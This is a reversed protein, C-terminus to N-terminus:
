KELKYGISSILEIFNPFSTFINKCDKVIIPQSCKLGAILFSMAIRHDGFSDINVEKSINLDRNGMIVISDDSSKYSVGLKNLGEEIAMLRDSEKFRLEGAGTISTDGEAFSAAISLIPIEDIIKPISEEEVSIGNLASSSVEIDAVEEGCCISRNKINIDSGMKKLIELLTFRTENIGVNKITISSDKTILAAVILFSASSFDGVM